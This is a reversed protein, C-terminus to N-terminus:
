SILQYAKYPRHKPFLGIKDPNLTIMYLYSFNSTNSTSYETSVDQREVNIAENKQNFPVTAIRTPYIDTTSIFLFKEDLSGSGQIYHLSSKPFTNYKRATISAIVLGDVSPDGIKIQFFSNIQGYSHRGETSEFRCWSGYSKPNNFSEKLYDKHTGEIYSLNQVGYRLSEPVKLERLWNGRSNFLVGYIHAKSYFTPKFVLLTMAVDFDDVTLEKITDGSLEIYKLWEYTSYFQFKEQRISHIRYIASHQLCLCHDSKFERKIELIMTELLFDYEYESFYIPTKTNVNEPDCLSFPISNYLLIGTKSDYKCNLTNNAPRKRSSAAKTGHIPENYFSKMTQLEFNIQNEMITKEFSLGGTNSKLKRSIMKGIAREGPFESVGMPPGFLPIFGIMDIIEHLQFTCHKNPLLGEFLCISEVIDDHIQALNEKEFHFSLLKSIDNGMMRYFLKYQDNLDKMSFIILEWFCSILKLRQNMKMYGLKGDEHLMFGKMYYSDDDLGPPLLVCQLWQHCRIMDNKSAVYPPPSQELRYSNFIKNKEQKTLKKSRKKPFKGDIDDEMEIDVEYGDDNEEDHEDAEKKKNSSKKENIVAGMLIASLLKVVGTLAHVFPWTFQEAINAYPLRDFYWINQIGNIHLTKKCKKNANL